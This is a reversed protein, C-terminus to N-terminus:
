SNIITHVSVVRLNRRLFNEGQDGLELVIVKRMIGSGTLRMRQRVAKLIPRRKEYCDQRWERNHQDNETMDEWKTKKRANKVRQIYKDLQNNEKEM